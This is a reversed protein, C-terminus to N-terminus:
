VPLIHDLAVKPVEIAHPQENTRQAKTLIMSRGSSINDYRFPVCAVWHAVPAMHRTATRNCTGKQLRAEITRSNKKVVHAMYISLFRAGVVVDKIRM